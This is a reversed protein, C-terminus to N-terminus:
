KSEGNSSSPVALLHRVKAISAIHDEPEAPQCEEKRDGVCRECFAGMDPAEGDHREVWHWWEAAPAGCEDCPAYQECALLLAARLLVTEDALKAIRRIREHVPMKALEGEVMGSERRPDTM